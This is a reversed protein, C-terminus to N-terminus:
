VFGFLIRLGIYFMVKVVLGLFCVAVALGTSTYDLAQRVAVIMAGLMWLSVVIAVLGRLGPIVAFIILIGPASAFGLTRLLEPIDTRTSPNRIIKVGVLWIISAWLMWGGIGNIVGMVVRALDFSGIYGIGDALAAIVVVGLAQGMATRDAEVEEYLAADLKAARIIRDLYRNM